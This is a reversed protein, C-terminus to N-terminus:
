KKGGKGAVEISGDEKITFVYVPTVVTEATAPERTLVHAVDTDEPRDSLVHAHTGPRGKSPAVEVITAHLPRKALITGGGAVLYRVDGGLPWLGPKTPAPVLYVWFRGGDAPLAAVNYPRREATSKLFDTLAADMALAALREFGTSARPPDVKAATFRGRAAETAEYTVLFKDRGRDLRGFAVVWGKDTRRAVQRAIDRGAPMLAFVADNASAVARDHGALARGRDSIAALEEKSPPGGAKTPDDPAPRLLALLAITALM